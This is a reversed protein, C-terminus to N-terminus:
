VPVTMEVRFGGEAQAGAHLQGGLAAAREQLNQLGFGFPVEGGVGDDQITLTVSGADFLLTLWVRTAGAHRAVNTLGEQAARYLPVGVGPSLAM